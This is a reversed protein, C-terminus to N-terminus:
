GGDLKRDWFSGLTYSAQFSLGSSLRKNVSIQLSNYRSNFETSQQEISGLNTTVPNYRFTQPACSWLGSPGCGLAAAASQWEHKRRPEVRLHRGPPSGRKRRLCRHPDDLREGPASTLNYNESYPVAFHPSLVNVVMPEFPSFDVGAGFKPAFPFQQPTSCPTPPTKGCWGTFPAALSPSGGAQIVGESTISFPPAVLNQLALEEETRNFYIGYGAHISWNKSGGPSWAFGIRPALDHYPTNIGGTDTIGADGPWLIGKPAGPFVTSQVGPRFANVDKGSYYRNTYPTEIDWGTGFTVTLDPRVKWEDQGYM